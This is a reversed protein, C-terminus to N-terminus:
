FHQPQLNRNERNFMAAIVKNRSQKRSAMQGSVRCVSIQENVIPLHADTPHATWHSVFSLFGCLIVRSSSTKFVVAKSRVIKLHGIWINGSAESM